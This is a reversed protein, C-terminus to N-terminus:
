RASKRVVYGSARAPRAAGRVAIRRKSRKPHLKYYLQTKKGTITLGHRRGWGALYFQGIIGAILNGLGFILGEGGIMSMLLMVPIHVLLFIFQHCALFLQVRLPLAHIIMIWLASLGVIAAFVLTM